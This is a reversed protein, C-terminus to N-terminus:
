LSYKNQSQKQNATKLLHNDCCVSVCVYKQTLIMYSHLNLVLVANPKVQITFQMPLALGLSTIGYELCALSLCALCLTPYHIIYVTPNLECDYSIEPYM